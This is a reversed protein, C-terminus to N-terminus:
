LCMLEFFKLISYLNLVMDFILIHIGKMDDKIRNKTVKEKTIKKILPFYEADPMTGLKKLLWLDPIFKFLTFSSMVRRAFTFPFPIFPCSEDSSNKFLIQQDKKIQQNKKSSLFRKTM